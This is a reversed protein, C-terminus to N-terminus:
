SGGSQTQAKTQGFNPIGNERLIKQGEPTLMFEILRRAGARNAAQKLIGAQVKVQPHSSAPLMAVIRYTNEYGSLESPTSEFPCANFYIGADVRGKCVFTVAELAHWHTVLKPQVAKWLKLSKLAEEAYYGVSNQSPDAIAVRRVRKSALDAISKIGAKNDKPAVLILRFTGFVFADQPDIFGEKVMLNMETEGPTLLIDPREGARIRRMLVVANDNPLKVKPNGPRAEFARRIKMMPGLM